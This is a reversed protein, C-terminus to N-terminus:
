HIGLLRDSRRPTDSKSDVSVPNDVSSGEEAKKKTAAKGRGKTSPKPAAGGKVAAVRGRKAKPKPEEEEEEAKRKRKNVPQTGAVAEAQPIGDVTKVQLRPAYCTTRGGAEIWALPEGNPLTKVATGKGWRYKFLWDSPFKNYDALNDVATQCVYRIVEFLSKIQHDTLSQCLQQPHLRSQFLVEDCVWNGIGSIVKQNLLLTKLAVKRKRCVSLFYPLTFLDTDSVPDPGNEKLPSHQKIANAPCDVLRVRALRRQDTFAVEVPPNSSTTLSFKTFRPPWAQSVTDTDRYLSSYSTHEGRIEVWGTMMLHMVLHPARDLIIWFVKGQSGASIVKRGTLAAAVQAGTSKEFVKEDDIASARQITKGVLHKRLFHVVRAVEGIEPM